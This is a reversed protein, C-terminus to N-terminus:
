SRANEQRWILGDIGRAKAREIGVDLMDPNIDGVTVRAGQAAMRFAIDGTGGAMDLIQEGARPRVKAVFRNKWLRHMGGSMLDNMVDYNRAVSTFVGGVRRTKEEPTVLQEGFNVKDTM